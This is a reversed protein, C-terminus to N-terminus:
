SELPGSDKTSTLTSIKGTFQGKQKYKMKEKSM